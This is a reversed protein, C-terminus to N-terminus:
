VRHRRQWVAGTARIRHPAAHRPAVHGAHRRRVRREPQRRVHLHRRGNPPIGVEHRVKLDARVQLALGEREAGGRDVGGHCGDRLTRFGQSLQLSLLLVVPQALEEPLAVVRRKVRQHQPPEALLAAERRHQQLLKAPLGDGPHIRAETDLRAVPQLQQMYRCGWCLPWSGRWPERHIGVERGVLRVIFVLGATSLACRLEPMGDYVSMAHNFVSSMAHNLVSAERMEAHM